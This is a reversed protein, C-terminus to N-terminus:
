SPNIIEFGSQNTVFIIKNSKNYFQYYNTGNVTIPKIVPNISSNNPVTINGLSIVESGYIKYNSVTFFSSAM